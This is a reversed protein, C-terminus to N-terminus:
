NELEYTITVNSTINVEKPMITTGTQSVDKRLVLGNTSSYNNEDISIVKGIKCGSAGALLSAADQANQVAATRAQRIATTKDSVVYEFSTLGNAGANSKVAADIVKGTIETNRIIVSISNSVTYQGPVSKSNDQYIRYDSTAVDNSDVGSTKLSDLVFQTNVANKEVAKSVNWDSTKVLFQLVVLDPLVSVNGTGSVTITRVKEEVVPKSIMCSSLFICGTLLIFIFKINKKM